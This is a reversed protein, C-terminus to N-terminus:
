DVIQGTLVRARGWLGKKKQYPGIIQSFGIKQAHVSYENRIRQWDSKDSKVSLWHIASVQGSTAIRQASWFVAAEPFLSKTLLYNFIEKRFNVTELILLDRSSITSSFREHFAWM